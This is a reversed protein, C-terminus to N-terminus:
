EVNQVQERLREIAAKLALGIRTLELDSSKSCLTNAERNFEQCLFDLRRGIAGGEALHERAAGVHAELRDLEERIDGRAVIMAIEQALREETVPTEGGLLEDLQERLRAARCDPQMEALNRAGDTLEAIEDLHDGIVRKLRDGEDKRTAALVTLLDGVSESLAVDRTAIVDEDEDDEDAVEVVGRLTMFTEINVHERDGRYEAALDVMRDLVDRNVVLVPRKEPRQISLNISINGRSFAETAYKKADSEIHDFGHPLRFRLDLGKSNVSKAEWVWSYGAAAGGVRAFGTMSTVAKSM